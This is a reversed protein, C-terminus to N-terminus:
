QYTKGNHRLWGAGHRGAPDHHTWHMVGGKDNWKYEGKFDITDGVALAEIRPALDINHSVLLTQGSGLKVIFRQHRSGDNDDALIRTVTGSGEVVFNGRGEAFASALVDDSQRSSSSGWGISRGFDAIDGFRAILAIAFCAVLILVKKM